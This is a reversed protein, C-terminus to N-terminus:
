IPDALNDCPGLRPGEPCMNFDIFIITCRRLLYRALDRAREAANSNFRRERLQRLRRKIFDATSEQPMQEIRTNTNNQQGAQKAAQQLQRALDPPVEGSQTGTPDLWNVPDNQVYAYLNTDGGAFLLPDKSTWRGTRADYDRAGFRVLGTDPDYLGGAFGFPQFGPNTDQTVRGFADYDIRQVIDGTTAHAVLRVSGRQDSIIRYTTGGRLMYDPVNTRSAYVFRSVVANSGDLEAVPNLSDGYLFGQVLTGNVRKGVRRNSGDVLYSISTSDPLTVGLLNGQVDYTYTTTQGDTTASLLAGDPTYTYSTSGYQTLRDQADYSGNASAGDVTASTRNGNADYSYQEITSGNAQVTALRGAADYSYDYTTSVSAITEIRQTIRGLQDYAYSTTYLPTGNAQVERGTVEAFGNFTWTDSTNELTTTGLLGSQANYAISLGGATSLSGDANYSYAIANAGNVRRQITRMDDDLTDSVSGSVPGSWTEGILLPGDYSRALEVMDPASITTLQGSTADYQYSVTGRAMTLTDLRGAADYSYDLTAGGPYAVQTLQGDADYTYSTTPDSADVAPPTYSTTQGREDYTFSHAPQDPPTIGTLNGEADYTYGISRGGPLVDQTARGAADYSFSSIRNFADTISAV